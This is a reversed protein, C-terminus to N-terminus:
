MGFVVVRSAVGQLVGLIFNVLLFSYFICSLPDCTWLM